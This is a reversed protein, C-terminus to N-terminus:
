CRPRLFPIGFKEPFWLHVRAQNRPEVRIPLHAFRAILGQIIEDEAEYSLDRGDFYAIDFDNIGTLSPRGTLVNWVTNYIAGSVLWADPLAEARLGTLIEMLLPQERIILVLEARQVEHPQGAFRLYDAMQTAGSWAVDNMGGSQCLTGELEM